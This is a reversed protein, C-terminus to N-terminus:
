INYIIVNKLPYFSCYQCTWNNIENQNSLTVAAAYALDRAMKTNYACFSQLVLLCIIVFLKMYRILLLLDIMILILSNITM